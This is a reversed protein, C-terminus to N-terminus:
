PFRQAFVPALFPLLTQSACEHTRPLVGVPTLPTPTVVLAAQLRKVSLADLSGSTHHSLRRDDRQMEIKKDSLFCPGVLNNAQKGEEKSRCKLM